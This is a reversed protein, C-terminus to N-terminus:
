CFLRTAAIETLTQRFLRAFHTVSLTSSFFPCHIGFFAWFTTFKEPGLDLNKQLVLIFNKSINTFRM